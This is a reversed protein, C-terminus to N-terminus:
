SLHGARGFVEEIVVALPHRVPFVVITFGRSPHCHAIDVLGLHKALPTQEFVSIDVGEAVLIEQAVTVFILVLTLVVVFMQEGLSQQLKRILM